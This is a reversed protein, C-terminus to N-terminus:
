SKTGTWQGPCGDPGVFTGTAQRGGFHGIFDFKIGLIVANGHASGGRSIQGTAGSGSIAGDSILFTLSWPPVCRGTASIAWAGDASGSARNEERSESAARKAARPKASHRAPADEDGGSVSKDTKGITGGTSGAQAFARTSALHLSLLGVVAIVALPKSSKGMEGGFIRQPRMLRAGPVSLRIGHKGKAAILGLKLGGERAGRPNGAM